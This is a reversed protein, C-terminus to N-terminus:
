LGNMQAAGDTPAELSYYSAEGYEAVARRRQLEDQQAKSARAEASYFGNAVVEAGSRSPVPMAGDGHTPNGQSSSRSSSVECASRGGGSLRSGRSVGLVAAGSSRDVHVGGRGGAQRASCPVSLSRMFSAASATAAGPHVVEVACDVPDSVLRSYLEHPHSANVEVTPVDVAATAAFPTRYRYLGGRGGRRRAYSRHTAANATGWTSDSRRGRGAGSTAGNIYDEWDSACEDEDITESAEAGDALRVALPPDRLAQPFPHLWERRYVRLLRYLEGQPPVNHIHNLLAVGEKAVPLRLRVEPQPQPTREADTAANRRAALTIASEAISITHPSAPSSADAAKQHGSQRGDNLEVSEGAGFSQDEELTTHHSAMDNSIFRVLPRFVAYEPGISAPRPPQPRQQSDTSPPPLYTGLPSFNYGSAQSFDASVNGDGRELVNFDNSHRQPSSKLLRRASSAPHLARSSNVRRWLASVPSGSRPPTPEGTAPCDGFTSQPTDELFEGSFFSLLMQHNSVMQSQSPVRSPTASVADDRPSQPWGSLSRKHRMSSPSRRNEPRSMAGDDGEGRAPANDRSLASPAKSLASATDTHECTKFPLSQVPSASRQRSHASATINNNKSDVVLGDAGGKPPGQLQPAGSTSSLSPPYHRRTPQTANGESMTTLVPLRWPAAAACCSSQTVELPGEEECHLADARRERRTSVSDHTSTHSATTAVRSTSSAAAEGAELVQDSHLIACRANRVSMLSASRRAERRLADKSTTLQIGQSSVLIIIDARPGEVDGSQAISGAAESLAVARAGGVVSQATNPITTSSPAGAHVIRPSQGSRVSRSPVSGARERHAQPLVLSSSDLIRGRHGGCRVEAGNTTTFSQPTLGSYRPLLTFPTHHLHERRHHQPGEQANSPTGSETHRPTTPLCNTSSSGQRGRQRRARRHLNMFRRNERAEQLESSHLSREPGLAVSDEENVADGSAAVVVEASPLSPRRQPSRALVHAEPEGLQVAAPLRGSVLCRQQRQPGNEGSARSGSFELSMATSASRNSERPQMSGIHRLSSPEAVPTPAPPHAPTHVQSPAQRPQLLERTSNSSSRLTPPEPLTRRHHAMCGGATANTAAREPTFLRPFVPM